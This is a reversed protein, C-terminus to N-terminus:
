AATGDVEKSCIATVQCTFKPVEKLVAVHSQALIISAAWGELYGTNVDQQQPDYSSEKSKLDLTSTIQVHKRETTCLLKSEDTHLLTYTYKREITQLLATTHSTTSTWM